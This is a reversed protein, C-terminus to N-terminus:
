VCYGFDESIYVCQQPPFNYSMDEHNQRLHSQNLKRFHFLKYKVRASAFQSTVPLRGFPKCLM